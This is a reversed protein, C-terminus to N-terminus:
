KERNNQFINNKGFVRNFSFYEFSWTKCFFNYQNKDGSAMKAEFRDNGGM